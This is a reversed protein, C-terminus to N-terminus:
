ITSFVKRGTKGVQKAKGEKELEDLYRVATASSIELLRVVDNNSIKKKTKFIELIKDKALNKKEQLKQNYDSLGKGMETYEDREKEVALVEREGEKINRLLYWIWIGMGIIVLILVLYIYNM